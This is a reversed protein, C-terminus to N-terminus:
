AVYEETYQEWLAVSNADLVPRRLDPTLVQDVTDPHNAAIWDTVTDWIEDFQAIEGTHVLGTIEDDAVLIEIFGSIPSHSLARTWDNESVYDCRVLTGGPGTSAEACTGIDWRWNSARLWDFYLRYQDITEIFGDSIPVDPAFLAEITDADLNDRAEMFANAVSVPSGEGDGIRLAIGLALAGVAALGAAVWVRPRKSTGARPEDTGVDIM